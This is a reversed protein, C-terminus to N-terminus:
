SEDAVAGAASDRRQQKVRYMAQDALRIAEEADVQQPAVRVVGVSAGPYDVGLGEGLVYHGRIAASLRAQLEDAPMDCAIVVFEDGGTRGIRDAPRLCQQMRAAVEVLFRDGAPHGHRDNIAKFGDLDVMGVLVPSDTRRALALLRQLEALIARRNFLGTLADTLAQSALEANAAQLRALLQERELAFGLLGGLMRLLNQVDESASVRSSSAACVTGLLSGDRARIPASAYTRIGLVRAADSDGWCDAIDECYPRNEELARKCLTDDWPVALGEPIDLTGTNRAFEVRQVGQGADIRTLYASEMGTIRGLLALLPRALQELTRAQPLTEALQSLIPDM